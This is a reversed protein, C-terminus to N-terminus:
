ANQTLYRGAETDFSANWADYDALAQECADLDGAERLARITAIRAKAETLHKGWRRLRLWEPIAYFVAFATIGAGVLGWTILDVNM